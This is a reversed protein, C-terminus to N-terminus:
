QMIQGDLTTKLDDTLLPVILIRTTMVLIPNRDLVVVIKCVMTMVIEIMEINVVLFVIFEPLYTLLLRFINYDFTM